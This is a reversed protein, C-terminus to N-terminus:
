RRLDDILQVARRQLTKIYSNGAALVGLISQHHNGTILATCSALVVAYRM